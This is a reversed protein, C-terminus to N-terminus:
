VPFEDLLRSFEAFGSPKTAPRPTKDFGVGNPYHKNYWDQMVEKEVTQGKADKIYEVRRLRGAESRWSMYAVVLGRSLWDPYQKIDVLYELLTCIDSDWENIIEILL